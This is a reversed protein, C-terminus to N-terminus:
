LPSVERLYRAADEPLTDLIYLESNLEFGSKPTIVPMIEIHWHFDEGLTHWHDKRPIRNPATHLVYTYPPNKLLSRMKKITSSLVVALNEIEAKDIDQFACDHRRPMIWCEFPHKPAFPIFAVFNGTEVIVRKGTKLEENMIDCFVCREKYYYYAKAGDLEEKIGKPIVPTAIVQSHPHSYLEGAIKGFDKYILTYRFRPDKELESIRHKYTELVASMQPADMDEPQTDHLPSEIIIENAGISNMIDYMGVGRRGLDGEIKFVPYPRPIVRTRWNSVNSDRIAFIEFTESEKGYCLICNNDKSAPVLCPITEFYYEPPKSDKLAAVWRNLIPDKRLEHM